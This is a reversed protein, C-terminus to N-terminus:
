IQQDGRKKTHLGKKAISYTIGADTAHSGAIIMLGFAIAPVRAANDALMLGVCVGVTALWGVVEFWALMTHGMLFDGWSPFILSRVALETPAWFTTGCSECELRAKPVVQFCENCLNERSQTAEPAFGLARYNALTEEFIAPMAKRDSKPFGSYRYKRGDQLRLTVM